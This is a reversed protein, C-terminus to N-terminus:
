RTVSRSPVPQDLPARASTWCAPCCGASGPSASVLMLVVGAALAQALGSGQFKVPAATTAVPAPGTDTVLLALFVLLAVGLARVASFFLSGARRQTKPRMRGATLQELDARLLTNLVSISTLVLGLLTGSLTAATQYVARRTDPTLDRILGVRGSAALAGPVSGRSGVPRRHSPEGVTAPALPTRLDRATTGGPGSPHPNVAQVPRLATPLRMTATPLPEVVSEIQQKFVDFTDDCAARASAHSIRRDRSSVAEVQRQAVLQDEVLNLVTPESDGPLYGTIRATSFRSIDQRRVLRRAADRLRARASPPRHRGVSFTVKAAGGDTLRAVAGLAAAVDDDGDPDLGDALEAPLALEIATIREMSNILDVADERYVPRLGLEVGLRGQLWESFRRVRPGDHNYVVMVINRPYFILNTAEVLGNPDPISLNSVRGAGDVESPLNDRRVRHLLLHPRPTDGVPELLTEAGDRHFFRLDGGSRGQEAALLRCLSASPFGESFPNGLPDTLQWVQVMRRMPRSYPAVGVLQADGRRPRPLGGPRVAIAVESESM